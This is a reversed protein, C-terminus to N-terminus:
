FSMLLNESPKKSCNETLKTKKVIERLTYRTKITIQQKHKLIFNIIKKQM